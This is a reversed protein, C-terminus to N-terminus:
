NSAQNSWCGSAKIGWDNGPAPSRKAWAQQDLEAIVAVAKWGGGLDLGERARTRHGLAAALPLQDLKALSAVALETTEGHL